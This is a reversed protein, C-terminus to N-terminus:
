HGKTRMHRRFWLWEAIFRGEGGAQLREEYASRREDLYTVFLQTHVLGEQFSLEARRPALFMEPYFDFVGTAASRRGYRQWAAPATPLEGCLRTNAHHVARVAGHAARRADSTLQGALARHLFRQAARRPLPADAAADPAGPASPGAAQAEEQTKFKM